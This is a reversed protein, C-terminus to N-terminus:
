SKLCPSNNDTIVLGYTVLTKALSMRRLVDYYVSPLVKGKNLEM